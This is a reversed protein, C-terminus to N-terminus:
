QSAGRSMFGRVGGIVILGAGVLIMPLAGRTVGVAVLLAGVLIGVVPNGRTM